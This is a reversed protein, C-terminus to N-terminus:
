PTAQESVAQDLAGCVMGYLAMVKQTPNTAAEGFSPQVDTLMGRNTLIRTAVELCVERWRKDKLLAISTMQDSASPVSSSALETMYAANVARVGALGRTTELSLAASSSSSSLFRAWVTALPQAIQTEPLLDVRAISVKLTANPQMMEPFAQGTSAAAVSLLGKLEDVCVEQKLLGDEAAMAAQVVSLGDARIVRALLQLLAMRRQEAVAAQRDIGRRYAFFRSNIQQSGEQLGLEEAIRKRVKGENNTFDGCARRLEATSALRSVLSSYIREIGATAAVNDGNKIAAVVFDALAEASLRMASLDPAAAKIVDEVDQPIKQQEVPMAAVLAKAQEWEAGNSLALVSVTRLAAAAAKAEAAAIISQRVDSPANAVVMQGAIVALTDSVTLPDVMANAWAVASAWRGHVALQLGVGTMLPENWAFVEGPVMSAQGSDRLLTSTASWVGHRVADVQLAVTPDPQQGQILQLAEDIAGSEALAGALTVSSKVAIVGSKPIKTALIKAEALRQNAVTTDDNALSQWYNTMLPSIRYYANNRGTNNSITDMQQFEAEAKDPLGLRLFADGTLRRCFPKDRNGDTVRSQEVMTQVLDLARARHDTAAPPDVDPTTVAIDPDDEPDVDPMAIHIPPLSNIPPKNLFSVLGLTLALLVAGVVGYLVYPKKASPSGPVKKAVPTEKDSVRAPAQPSQKQDTAPAEFVPVMCKKNACRVQRGVAAKPIFGQTDCMPCIVRHLRGKMPKPACQLVKKGTPSKAVAFPDDNDPERKQPTNKQVTESASDAPDVKPKQGASSGDM